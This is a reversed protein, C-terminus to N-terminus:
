AQEQRLAAQGTETIRHYRRAPRRTHGTETRATTLGTHALQHLTPGITGAPIGTTTALQGAWQEHGDALAHLLAIATPTLTRRVVIM